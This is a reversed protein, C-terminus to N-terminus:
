CAGNAPAQDKAWEMFQVQAKAFNAFTKTTKDKARVSWPRVRERVNAEYVNEGDFITDSTMAEFDLAVDPTKLVRGTKATRHLTVTNSERQLVWGMAELGATENELLEDITTYVAPPKPLTGALQSSEGETVLEMKSIDFTKTARSELCRARLKGDQLAIPQLDRESGPSSGGFYRVRLSKGQNIAELLAASIMLVGRSIGLLYKLGRTHVGTAYIELSARHSRM